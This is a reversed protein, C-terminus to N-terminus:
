GCGVSLPGCQPPPLPRPSRRRALFADAAERERGPTCLLELARSEDLLGRQVSYIVLPGPARSCEGNREWEVWRITVAAAPTGFDLPISRSLLDEAAVVCEDLRGANWAIECRAWLLGELDKSRWRKAHEVASQVLQDARAFNGLDSEAIALLVAVPHRHGGIAPDDVLQRLEDVVEPSALESLSLNAARIGRAARDWSHNNQQAALELLDNCAALGGDIDGDFFRALASLRGAEFATGYERDRKARRFVAPLDRRWRDDGIVMNIAALIVGAKTVSIGHEDGIETAARADAIAGPIDYLEGKAAARAVLLSVQQEANIDAGFTEITADAIELVERSQREELAFRTRMLERDIADSVTPPEHTALRAVLPKTAQLEGIDLWALVALRTISWLKDTPANEAAITLFQARSADTTANAAAELATAFAQAPVGAAAWHIAAEGPDQIAEARRLHLGTREVDDLSAMALEAFIEAAVTVSGTAGIVALRRDVLESVGTTEAHVDPDRLGLRALTVRAVHPCAEIVARLTDAHETAARTHAFTLAELALPNGGSAAALDVARGAPDYPLLRRALEITDDHALPELDIVEGIPQIQKVARLAADGGPRITVILPGTAALAPLAEVTDPDSWQLDDLLLVADGVVQRVQEAVAAADGRGLPHGVIRVLPLFPRAQLYDLAAGRYLRRGADRRRTGLWVRRVSGPRASWRSPM